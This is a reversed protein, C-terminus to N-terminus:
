VLTVWSYKVLRSTTQLSNSSLRFGTPQLNLKPTFSGNPLVTTM